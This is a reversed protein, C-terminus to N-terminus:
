CIRPSIQATPEPQIRDIAVRIVSQWPIQENAISLKCSLSNYIKNTSFRIRQKGKNLVTAKHCQYLRTYRTVKFPISLINQALGCCFFVFRTGLEHSTNCIISTAFYLVMENLVNSAFDTGTYGNGSVFGVASWFEDSFTGANKMVLLMKRM